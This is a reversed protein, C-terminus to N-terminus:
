LYLGIVAGKWWKLSAIFWFSWFRRTLRKTTVWLRMKINELVALWKKSGVPFLSLLFVVSFKLVWGRDRDRDRGRDRDAYGPMNFCRIYIFSSLYGTKKPRSLFRSRCLQQFAPLTFILGPKYPSLFDRKRHIWGGQPKVEAWLLFSSTKNKNFDKAKLNGQFYQKLHRLKSSLSRSGQFM